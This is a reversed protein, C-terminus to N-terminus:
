LEISPAISTTCVPAFVVARPIQLTVPVDFALANKFITQLDACPLSEAEIKVSATWRMHM